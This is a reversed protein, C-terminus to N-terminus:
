MPHPDGDQAGGFTSDVAALCRAVTHELALLQEARKRASIDDIVSIFYQPQGALDRVLSLSRNFWSLVGDKRILRRECTSTRIKGAMVQARENERAPMEDPPTLRRFDTGILEDTTYGLLNCFRANAMLIRHTDPAIHAIGVAAEEFTGRMLAENAKLADETRWLRYLLGTLLGLLLLGSLGVVLARVRWGVLVDKSALGATVFFPYRDLVRSSYIRAYGDTSSLFEITATKIGAALAARTPNGPPLPTGIRGEVVPWRVVPTFDDSRYISAIGHAGLDLSQFLKQFYDLKIAAFVIGRFAGQEDRLARAVVVSPEGRSRSILVESFVLGAQPNDRLLRYYNRDSIHTRPTADSGTTYLRGGSADFIRLAALEPFNVLYSEMKAGLEGAYRSVSQESLAAVPITRALEQLDADARRLTADLRAEIMAAYNRTKTEAEHKAERYGSWILYGLLSIVALVVVALSAILRRSRRKDSSRKM